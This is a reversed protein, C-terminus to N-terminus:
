LMYNFTLNKSDAQNFIVQAVDPGTVHISLLPGIILRCFRPYEKLKDEWEKIQQGYLKQPNMGFVPHDLKPGTLRWRVYSYLKIYKQQPSM